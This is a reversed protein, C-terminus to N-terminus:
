YIFYIKGGKIRFEVFYFFFIMMGIRIYFRLVYEKVNRGDGFVFFLVM